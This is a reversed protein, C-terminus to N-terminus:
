KQNPLSSKKRKKLFAIFFQIAVILIFIFIVVYESMEMVVFPNTTRWIEYVPKGGALLDMLTILLFLSFALLAVVVILKLNKM